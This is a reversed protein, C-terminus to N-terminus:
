YNAIFETAQKILEAKVKELGAGKIKAIVEAVGADVDEIYGMYLPPGYQNFIENINTIETQIDETNFNFAQWPSTVGRAKHAEAVTYYTPFVNATDLQYNKNRFLYTMGDGYPKETLFEAYKEGVLKYHVNEIGFVFLRNLEKNTRALNALILAREPNKSNPSVAYGSGIYATALCKAGETSDFIELEWDPHDKKWPLYFAQISANENYAISGSKGNAFSAVLDTQKSLADKTWYGKNKWDKIKKLFNVFDPDEFQLRISDISFDTFRVAFPGGIGTIEHAYNYLGVMTGNSGYALDLPVMEPENEKIAILYEEFDDMNKIEGVGYKKRLDGRVVYSNILYEDWTTPIMYIKGDVKAQKWAEAPMEKLIDPCYKNLLEDTLELFAHKKAHKSYEMWNAAYVADFEEGSAFLLPYKTWFTAWPLLEVEITTNIKDKIFENIAAQVDPNGPSPDSVSYIKLKVEKSIDPVFVQQTTEQTQESTAKTASTGKDGPQERVTCGVIVTLVMIIVLIASIM